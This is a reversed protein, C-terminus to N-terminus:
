LRGRDRRQAPGRGGQGEAGAEGAAPWSREIFGRRPGRHLTPLTRTARTTPMPMAALTAPTLPARGAEALGNGSAAVDRDVVVATGAAWNGRGTVVVTGNPGTYKVVVVVTGGLGSAATVVVLTGTSVLGGASEDECDPMTPLKM